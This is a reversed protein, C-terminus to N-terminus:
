SRQCPLRCRMGVSISVQPVHQCLSKLTSRMFRRRAPAPICGAAPSGALLTSSPETHLTERCAPMQAQLHTAALASPLKSKWVGHPAASLLGDLNLAPSQCVRCSAASTAM